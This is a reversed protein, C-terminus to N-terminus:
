RSPNSLRICEPTVSQMAYYQDPGTPGQQKSQWLPFYSALHLWTQEDVDSADYRMLVFGNEIQITLAVLQELDVAPIHAETPRRAAYFTQGNLQWKPLKSHVANLVTESWVSADSDCVVAGNGFKSILNEILLTEYNTM